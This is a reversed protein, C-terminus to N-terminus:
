DRFYVMSSQVDSFRYLRGTWGPGPSPAREDLSLVAYRKGDEAPDESKRYGVQGGRERLYFPIPWYTDVTVLV